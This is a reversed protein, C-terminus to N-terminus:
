EPRASDDADRTLFSRGGLRIGHAGSAGTGAYVAALSACCGGRSDGRDLPRPYLRRRPGVTAPCRADSGAGAAGALLRDDATGACVCECSTRSQSALLAGAVLAGQALAAPGAVLGAMRSRVDKPRVVRASFATSGPSQARVGTVSLCASVCSINLVPVYVLIYLNVYPLAYNTGRAPPM